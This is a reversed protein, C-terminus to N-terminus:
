VRTRPYGSTRKHHTYEFVDAIRNRRRHPLPAWRQVSQIEQVTLLIETSSSMVYGNHQQTPPAARRACGRTRKVCRRRRYSAWLPCGFISYRAHADFVTPSDWAQTATISRVLTEIEEPKCMRRFTYPPVSSPAPPPLCRGRRHSTLPAWSLMLWTRKTILLFRTSYCSWQPQVQM